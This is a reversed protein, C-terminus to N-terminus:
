KVKNNNQLEMRDFPTAAYIGGNEEIYAIRLLRYLAVM